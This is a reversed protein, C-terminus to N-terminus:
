SPKPFLKSCNCCGILGGVKRGTGFGGSSCKNSIIQGKEAKLDFIAVITSRPRSKKFDSRIPNKSDAFLLWRGYDLVPELFDQDQDKVVVVKLLQDELRPRARQGRGKTELLISVVLVVLGDGGMLAEAAM